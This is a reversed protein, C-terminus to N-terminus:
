PNFVEAAATAVGEEVTEGTMGGVILIRGDCTGVAEHGWRPTIMNTPLTKLKRSSDGDAETTVVMAEATSIPTLSNEVVTLGGAVLIGELEKTSYGAASFEARATDMYMQGVNPGWTESTASWGCVDAAPQLHQIDSYGGFLYMDNLMPVARHMTRPLPDYGPSRERLGILMPDHELRVAQVDFVEVTNRVHEADGEGFEGGALLVISGTPPAAHSELFTASHHWRPEVLTGEKTTGSAAQWLEWEGAGTGKGGAVLVQGEDSVLTATHYMRPHGMPPGAGFASTDPDFLEVSDLPDGSEDMGGFIAVKGDPLLVAEAFARGIQLQGQGAGLTEFTGATPNYLEADVRVSGAAERGGGILVRGDALATVTAGVEPSNLSSVARSGLDVTPGFSRPPLMYLQVQETGGGAPFPCSRATSVPDGSADLCEAVVSLTTDGPLSYVIGEEFVVSEFEVEACDWQHFDGPLQYCVRLTKCGDFPDLEPHEEPAAVLRVIIDLRDGEPAKGCLGEVCEWGDACPNSEDCAFVKTDLGLDDKCGATLALTILLAVSLGTAWAWRGIRIDTRGSRFM